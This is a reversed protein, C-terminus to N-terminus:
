FIINRYINSKRVKLYEDIYSKANARLNVIKDYADAVAIIKSGLPIEEESLQDPYGEGDFQEHHSRILIGVHDLNKIFGVITQGEEPHKRFLAEEQETWNREKDELLKQPFGLKGIDHM